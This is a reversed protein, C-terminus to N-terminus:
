SHQSWPHFAESRCSGFAARSGGGVECGLPWVRCPGGVPGPCRPCIAAMGRRELGLMQCDSFALTSRKTGGAERPNEATGWLPLMLRRPRSAEGLDLVLWQDQSPPPSKGVVVWWAGWVQSGISRSRTSPRAGSDGAGCAWTQPLLAATTM